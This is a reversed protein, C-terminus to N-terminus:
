SIMNVTSITILYMALVLAQQVFINTKLVFIYIYIGILHVLSFRIKPHHCRFLNDLYTQRHHCWQIAILVDTKSLQM